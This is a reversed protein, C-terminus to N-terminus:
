DAPAFEYYIHLSLAGPLVEPRVETARMLLSGGSGRVPLRTSLQAAQLIEIPNIRRDISDQVLRLVVGSALTPINNLRIDTVTVRASLVQRQRDFSLNIVTDAWGTFNICGVLAVAYSGKFALPAVVRGNEFRVGTRVGGSERELTVVSECNVATGAHSLSFPPVELSASARPPGAEEPGALALPFSPAKMRTFITELLANFFQQNLTVTVEAPPTRVERARTAQGQGRATAAHAAVILGLIIALTRKTMLM